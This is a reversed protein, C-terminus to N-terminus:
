IDRHLSTLCRRFSTSSSHGPVPYTFYVADGGAPVTRYLGLGALEPVVRTVRDTYTTWLVPSKTTRQHLFGTEGAFWLLDTQYTALSDAPIIAVEAPEAAHAPLTVSLGTVVLIGCAASALGRRIMRKM